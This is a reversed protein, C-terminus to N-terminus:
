DNQVENGFTAVKFASGVALVIFVIDVPSFMTEFFLKSRNMETAVVSEGQRKMAATAKDIEAKKTKADMKAIIAEAEKDAAESQADTAADPDIGKKELQQNLVHIHLRDEPSIKELEKDLLGSLMPVVMPIVVWTFVMFKGVIIGAVAMTAAVAGSKVSTGNYGIMMGFGAALGVGWAIWGIERETAKAIFYWVLAGVFAFVASILAGKILNGGDGAGTTSDAQTQVSTRLAAPFATGAAAPRIVTPEAAATTSTKLAKGTRTDYGCHTCLVAGAEMRTRCAPCLVAVQEAPASAAASNADSALDYMADFGDEEQPPPAHVTLTAGCKPCRAKRGVASAPAKLKAGCACQVTIKEGTGAAM